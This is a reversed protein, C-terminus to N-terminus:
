RLGRIGTASTGTAFVRIIAVPHIMGAVVNEFTEDSGDVMRVRLNGTVGVWIGRTPAILDNVDSPAIRFAHEAPIIKAASELTGRGM